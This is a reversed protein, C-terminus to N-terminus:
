IYDRAVERVKVTIIVYMYIKCLFRSKTLPKAAIEVPLRPANDSQVFIM